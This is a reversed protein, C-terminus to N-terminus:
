SRHLSPTEPLAPAAKDREFVVGLMAPLLVLDGVLAFLLAACTLGGFLRTGPLGSLVLTGFGAVLLMTTAIVARGTLTLSYRLATTPDHGMRRARQFSNLLHITDDVAIGLAISFVVVSAYQLPQGVWVLLAATAVLPFANPLLSVLGLRVSRLMVMIVVFILVAALALSRALTGIM